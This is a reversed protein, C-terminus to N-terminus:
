LLKEYESIKEAKWDGRSRIEKRISDIENIKNQIQDAIQTIEM